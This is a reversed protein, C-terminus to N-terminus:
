RVIGVAVDITWSTACTMSVTTGKITLAALHLALGDLQELELSRWSVRLGYRQHRDRSSHIHNPFQV